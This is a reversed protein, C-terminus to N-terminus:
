RIHLDPGVMRVPYWREFGNSPRDHFAPVGGGVPEGAASQEFAERGLTSGTQISDSYDFHAISGRLKSPTDQNMVLFPDPKVEPAASTTTNTGFYAGSLGYTLCFLVGCFMLGSATFQCEDSEPKRRRTRSYDESQVSFALM